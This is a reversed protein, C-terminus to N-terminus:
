LSVKLCNDGRRKGGETHARFFIAQCFDGIKWACSVKQGRRGSESLFDARLEAGIEVIRTEGEIQRKLETARGKLSLHPLRDGFNSASRNRRIGIQGPLKAGRRARDTLGTSRVANWQDDRTMPHHTPAPQASEHVRSVALRKGDLAPQQSM